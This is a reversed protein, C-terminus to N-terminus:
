LEHRESPLSFIASCSHALAICNPRQAYIFPPYLDILTGSKLHISEPMRPGDRNLACMQDENQEKGKVERSRLRETFLSSDIIATEVLSRSHYASKKKM